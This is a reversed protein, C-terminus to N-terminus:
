PGRPAARLSSWSAFVEAGGLSSRVRGDRPWDPVCPVLNSPAPCKRWGLSASALHPGRLRLERRRVVHWRQTRFQPPVPPRRVSCAVRSLSWRRGAKECLVPGVSLRTRSSPVAGECAQPRWHHQVAGTSGTSVCWATGLAVLSAAQSCKSGTSVGGPQVLFWGLRWRAAGPALRSAVQSCWSGASVGGPQVQLWDLRWRAASLVM